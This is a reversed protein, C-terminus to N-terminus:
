VQRDFAPTYWLMTTILTLGVAGRIAAHHARRYAREVSGPGRHRARSHRGWFSARHQAM